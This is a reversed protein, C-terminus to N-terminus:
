SGSEPVTNLIFKYTTVSLNISVIAKYPLQAEFSNIRFGAKVSPKQICKLKRKHVNKRCYKGWISQIASLYPLIHRYMNQKACKQLVFYKHIYM